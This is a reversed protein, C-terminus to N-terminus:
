WTGRHFSLVLPGTRVLDELRVRQGSADPLEFAPATMGVQLVKNVRAVGIMTDAARPSTLKAAPKVRPHPRAVEDM